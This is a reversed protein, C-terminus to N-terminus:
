ICSIRFKASYIKLVKMRSEGCYAINRAADVRLLENPSDDALVEKPRLNKLNRIPFGQIYAPNRMHAQTSWARQLAAVQVPGVEQTGTYKM